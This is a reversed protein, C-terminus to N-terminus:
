PRLELAAAAFPTRHRRAAAALHEALAVAGGEAAATLAATAFEPQEPLGTSVLVVDGAEAGLSRSPGDGHDRIPWWGPLRSTSMLVLRNDAGPAALMWRGADPDLHALASWAGPQRAALSRQLQTSDPQEQWADLTPLLDPAVPQVVERHQAILATLGLSTNIELRDGPSGPIEAAIVAIRGRGIQQDDRRVVFAPASPDRWRVAAALREGLVKATLPQGLLTVRGGALLIWPQVLPEDSILVVTTGPFIEDALHAATQPLRRAGRALPCLIARPPTGTTLDQGPEWRRTTVEATAAAQEILPLLAPELHHDVVLVSSM